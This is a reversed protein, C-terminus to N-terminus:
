FGQEAEVPQIRNLELVEQPEIFKKMSQKTTFENLSNNLEILQETQKMSENMLDLVGTHYEEKELMEVDEKWTGELVAVLLCADVGKGSLLREAASDDEAPLGTCREVRIEVL